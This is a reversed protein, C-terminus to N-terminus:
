RLGQIDSVSLGTKLAITENDLVDLLAKAIEINRQRIGEQLGKEIGEQLGIEKGKELGEQLGIMIGEQLGENKAKETSSKQIYIFEKRKHQAELEESSMGAENVTNLANQSVDIM